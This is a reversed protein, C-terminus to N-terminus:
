SKDVEVAEDDRQAIHGPLDNLDGCRRDLDGCLPSGLCRQHADISFQAHQAAAVLSQQV